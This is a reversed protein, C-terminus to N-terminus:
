KSFDKELLFARKIGNEGNKDFLNAMTPVVYIKIKNEGKKINKSIDFRYPPWAREGAFSSNIFVAAYDNTELELVANKNELKCDFEYLAMGSYYPYGIETFNFVNEKVPATLAENEDLSFSGKLMAFPVTYPMPYDPTEGVCVLVNTGESIKKTIDFVVNHSDYINEYRGIDLIEGNLIFRQKYIDEVALELKKPKNIVNFVAKVAYGNGTKLETQNKFKDKSATKLTEFVSKLHRGRLESTNLYLEYKLPLMNGLTAEFSVKKIEEIIKGTKLKKAAELGKQLDSVLEIDGAFVAIGEYACLTLETNKNFEGVVASKDIDYIIAKSSSRLSIKIKEDNESDNAILFVSVKNMKRRFAFVNESASIEIPEEHMLTKFAKSFVSALKGREELSVENTSIGRIKRSIEFYETTKEDNNKVNDCSKLFEETNTFCNIKELGDIDFDPVGNVLVTRGGEKIFRTLIDATTKRLYKASPIIVTDYPATEEGNLKFYIKGNDTRSNKFLEEFAIEFSVKETILANIVAAVTADENFRLSSENIKKIFPSYNEVYKAEGTIKATTEPYLVLVSASKESNAVIACLHSIYESLLGYNSFLLNNPGHSPKSNQKLEKKMGDLSYYANSLMLTTVGSMLLRNAVRKMDKLSLNWNKGMYAKCLTKSKKLWHAASDLMVPAIFFRESNLEEGLYSSDITPVTLFRQAELFGGFQEAHATLFEENPLYSAFELNNKKAWDSVRKLYNARFLEGLTDKYDRKVKLEEETKENEFLHYLKPLIDYCNKIKFLDAFRESWPLFGKSTDEFVSFSPKSNFIGRVTKGFEGGVAKKYKEYTYEIFKDTADENFVDLSGSEYTAYKCWKSAESIEDQIHRYIVFLEGSKGKNEFTIKEGNEAREIAVVDSVDKVGNVDKFHAVVFKEVTVSVTENEKVELKKQSIVKSKAWNGERLLKGGASGSPSNYEDCIWVRMKLRKAEVVALKIVSFFEDSLYDHTIGYGAQIFVEFIGQEKFAALFRKIEAETIEGNLVWTVAPNSDKDPSILKLTFDRMSKM